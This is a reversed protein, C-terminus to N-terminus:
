LRYSESMEAKSDCLSKIAISYSLLVIRANHLFAAILFVHDYVCSQPETIAYIVVFARKPQKFPM